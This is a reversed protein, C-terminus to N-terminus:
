ASSPELEHASPGPEIVDAEEPPDVTLHPLVKDLWRPLAWNAEGFLHMLSPVLVTRLIFADLAVAAALGIGFEAIDRQGLLIFAVFVCIMITAAATIVKATEAQGVRIAKHNDHTHSWEEHMRSVLFVQYDMSLGFLIALMLVPVFAEVPGSGGLGIPNSGWGWQFFAVVVGFSSAAAILNMVAATLPIVISRFAIMLLLAGLAVIVLIFLVMKGALVHAFDAFTATAGGVYVTTGSSQEFGPLVDKRLNNILSSTAKSQPSTTPFVDFVAINGKTLPLQVVKDVGSTSALVGKLATDNAVNAATVPQAVILLPGNFGPGFGEALLDYSQRTTSGSPDSSSDSSGLRIALTPIALVLMVIIAVGALIKPRNQVIQAWQAWKSGAHVDVPSAALKAREKKSLVRAGMLGLLAPLLTVAAFVTFVVTLAAAVAVGDLFTVGLVLMGLLAICVTGGAFLVARGSTNLATIAADEPSKGAKIGNRHRTVIFLAYDIGVGLGVLASLTPAISAISFGHSLLAVAEIGVGIGAVATLLPLLMSLLSGFALFLVIAAAIIGILESFGGPKQGVQKIAQGGLQVDLGSSRANEAAKIVANVSSVPLTNAQQDFNVTAYAIQGNSSIAPSSAAKYPNTVSTVNPLTAVKTLMATVRQETTADRVTGTDVKWVITDSDGSQSPVSKELLNLAKTSDTGPLSFADAYASGGAAKGGVILGILLVLWAVIVISRHRFCWQALTKM